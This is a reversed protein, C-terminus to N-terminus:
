IHNYKVIYCGRRFLPGTMTMKEAVQSTELFGCLVFNLTTETRGTDGGECKIWEFELALLRLHDLTPPM